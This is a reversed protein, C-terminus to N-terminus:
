FRNACSDIIEISHLNLLTTTFQYVIRTAFLIPIIAYALAGAILSIRERWFTGVVAKTVVCVGRALDNLVVALGIITLSLFCLAYRAPCYKWRLQNLTGPDDEVAFPTM